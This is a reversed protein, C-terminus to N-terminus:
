SSVTFMIKHNPTVTNFTRLTLFISFWQEREWHIYRDSTMMAMQRTKSALTKVM